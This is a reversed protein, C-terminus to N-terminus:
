KVSGGRNGSGAARDRECRTALIRPLRQQQQAARGPRRRPSQGTSLGGHRPPAGAAERLRLIAGGRRFGRGEIKM